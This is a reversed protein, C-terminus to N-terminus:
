VCKETVHRFSCRGRFAVLQEDITCYESVTYNNQSNNVFMNFFERVPALKDFKKRDDRSNVDDM